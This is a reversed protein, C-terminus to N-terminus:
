QAPLKVLVPLSRDITSNDGNQGYTNQGWCMPKGDSTLVCAHHGGVALAGVVPLNKVLAATSRALNSGDGLQGFSNKGWCSVSFDSNIACGHDWGSGVSLTNNADMIGASNLDDGWCKVLGTLTVACGGLAWRNASIAMSTELSNVDVSKLEEWNAVAGATEGLLFNIGGSIQNPAQTFGSKVATLRNTKSGDNLQGRGNEGWCWVEGNEVVACTFDKGATFSTAPGPLGQVKVPVSRNTTTNDGLQGSANDGWCWVAGEGTLACTHLSGATLNLVGELDLVYVPTHRDTTTGDGDQGSANLGWCLVKGNAATM